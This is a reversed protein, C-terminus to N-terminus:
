LNIIITTCITCSIMGEAMPPPVYNYTEKVEDNNKIIGALRNNAIIPSELADVIAQITAADGKTTIWKRLMQTMLTNCRTSKDINQVDVRLFTGLQHWESQVGHLMILLDKMEVDVAAIVSIYLMYLCHDHMGPGKIHGEKELKKALAIYGTSKLARQLKDWTFCKKAIKWENLMTRMYQACSPAPAAALAEGEGYGVGLMTGLLSWRANEEQLLELLVDYNETTM